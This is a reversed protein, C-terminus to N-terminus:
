SLYSILALNLKNSVFCCVEQLLVKFFFLFFHPLLLLSSNLLSLYHPRCFMNEATFICEPDVPQHKHGRGTITPSVWGYVICM